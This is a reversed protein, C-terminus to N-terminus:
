GRLGIPEHPAVPPSRDGRRDSQGTPRESAAEVRGDAWVREALRDFGRGIRGRAPMLTGHDQARAIARDVPFVAIPDTGFVRGVDSPVIEGRAARNVVFALRGDLDPSGWAEFLRTASRLSAVDPVLVELVHHAVDIADRVRDDLCRGTHVIVLESAGAAVEAARHVDHGSLRAAAEPPPAVLVRFGEPHTWLVEDLHGQTLEDGLPLLDAFTRVEADPVGLAAGVDGFVPEADILVVSAGRRAAAAALHTAVFTAGAGGRAAHVAVVAGRSGPQATGVRHTRAVARALAEREGPWVFFGSAGADIAARLGATTERTDVALTPVGLTAVAAALSPGVVVVDPELQQAAAAVQRDDEGTAVVRAAGGRDLHHLIEEAVDPRDIGLVVRITRDADTV